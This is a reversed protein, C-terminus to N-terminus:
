GALRADRRLLQAVAPIRVLVLAVAFAAVLVPATRLEKFAWAFHWADLLVAVYVLRHLTVWRRGLRRQWGATSTIALPLMLVFTALGLLAFRNQGLGSWLLGLQGGYGLVVHSLLHLAAYVFAGLGLARRAPMLLANGSLRRVAGPVLSLVLLALAVDGSRRTVTGVPDPGLGPGLALVALAAMPVASLVYVAIPVRGSQGGM